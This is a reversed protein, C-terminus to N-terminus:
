EFIQIIKGNNEYSLEDSQNAINDLVKMHLDISKEKKQKRWKTNKDNISIM